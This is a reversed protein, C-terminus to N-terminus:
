LAKLKLFTKPCFQVFNRLRKAPLLWNAKNTGNLESALIYFTQQALHYGLSTASFVSQQYRAM